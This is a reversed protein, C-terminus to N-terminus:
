PPVTSVWYVQDAALQGELFLEGLADHDPSASTIGLPLAELRPHDLPLQYFGFERSNVAFVIVREDDATIPALWGDELDLVSTVQGDQKSISLLHAPSAYEPLGVDNIGGYAYGVYLYESNAALGLASERRASSPEVHRLEVVREDEREVFVSGSSDCWYVEGGSPLVVATLSGAGARPVGDIALVHVDADLTIADRAQLATCSSAGAAAGPETGSSGGGCAGLGLTM